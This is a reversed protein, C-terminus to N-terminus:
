VPELRQRPTLTRHLRMARLVQGGVVGTSAQLLKLLAADGLETYSWSTRLDNAFCHIPGIFFPM